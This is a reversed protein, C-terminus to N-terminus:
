GPPFHLRLDSGRERHWTPASTHKDLRPDVTSNRIAPRASKGPAAPSQCGSGCELGQEISRHRSRWFIGVPIPCRSAPIPSLLPPTGFSPSGLITSLFLSHIQGWKPIPSHGLFAPFSWPSKGNRSNGKDRSWDSGLRLSRRSGLFKPIILCNGRARKWLDAGFFEGLNPPILFGSEYQFLVQFKGSDQQIQCCHILKSRLSPFELPASPLLNWPFKLQTYPTTRRASLEINWFQPSPSSSPICFLPFVAFTGYSIGSYEWIEGETTTTFKQSSCSPGLVSPHM